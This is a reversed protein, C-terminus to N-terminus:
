MIFLDVYSNRFTSQEGNAFHIILYEHYDDVLGSAEIESVTMPDSVVEFWVVDTYNITKYEDEATRPDYKCTPYVNLKANYTKRMESLREELEKIHNKKEEIADNWAQFKKLTPNEEQDKLDKELEEREWAIYQEYRKIRKEIKTM